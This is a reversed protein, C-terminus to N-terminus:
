LFSFLRTIQEFFQQYKKLNSLDVWGGCWVFMKKVGAATM